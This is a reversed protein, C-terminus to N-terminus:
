VAPSWSKFQQMPEGTEQNQTVDVSGKILKGKPERWVDGVAKTTFDLSWDAGSFQANFQEESKHDRPNFGLAAMVFMKAYSQAGETHVQANFIQKKGKHELPEVVTVPYMAGFVSGVVNGAADKKDRHFARPEGVQFIYEGKDLIALATSVKSPDFNFIPTTM